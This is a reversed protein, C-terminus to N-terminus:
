RAVFKGGRVQVLHPPTISNATENLQIPGAVGEYHRIGMLHDRIRARNLGKERVADIVMNAADYGYAAFAEPEEGYRDNFRRTFDLWTEDRRGPALWSTALIGEADDGALDLFLKSALRDTGAVPIQIGRARLQRLARAAEPARAWLVLAQPDAAIVRDLASTFDTEDPPFQVELPLPRQLRRAADRFERIGFRGYRNNSRLVAVRTLNMEKFLLEALRYSIQRDDPTCRAVWPIGTETMTPDGSGVNLIPIEAKFAVRLAVHTTNSDISGIIAWVKERYALDIVTNSSSGWLAQDARLVIEFPLDRYGGAANAEAFAMEVGRKLAQGNEREPVYGLPAILGIRVAELGEPEPYDRGPGNYPLPDTYFTRDPKGSRFYPRMEDPTSGYAEEGTVEAPPANSEDAAAIDAPGDTAEDTDLSDNTTLADAPENALDGASIAAPTAVMLLVLFAAPLLLGLVVALGGTRATKRQGMQNM